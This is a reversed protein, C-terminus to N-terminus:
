KIWTAYSLPVEWPSYSGLGKKEESKTPLHDRRGTSALQGCCRRFARHRYVEPKAWTGLMPEKPFSPGEKFNEGLIHKYAMQQGECGEEM